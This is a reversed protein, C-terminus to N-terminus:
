LISRKGRAGGRGAGRLGLVVRGGRRSVLRVPGLELDLVPGTRELAKDVVIDDLNGAELDLTLVKGLRSDLRSQGKRKAFETLGMKKLCSRDM